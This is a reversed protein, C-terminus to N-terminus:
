RAACAGGPVGAPPRLPGVRASCRFRWWRVTAILVGNLVDAARLGLRETGYTLVFTYIYFLGNEAFRAGMALLVESRIRRSCKSVPQPAEAGRAKRSAFAPTEAM